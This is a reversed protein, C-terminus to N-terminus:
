RRPLRSSALGETKTEVPKKPSGLFPLYAPSEVLACECSKDLRLECEPFIDRITSQALWRLPIQGHGLNQRVALDSFEQILYNNTRRRLADSRVAIFQAQAILDLEIGRAFFKVYWFSM